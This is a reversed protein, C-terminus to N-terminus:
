KGESKIPFLKTVRPPPGATIQDISVLPVIKDSQIPRMSPSLLLSNRHVAQLDLLAFGKALGMEDRRLPGSSVLRAVSHGTRRSPTSKELGREAKNRRWSQDKSGTQPKLSTETGNILQKKPRGELKSLGGLKKKNKANTDNIDLFEYQPMICHPLLCSPDLKPIPRPDKCQYLPGPTRTTVSCVNRHKVKVDLKQVSSLPPLLKSQVPRPPLNRQQKKKQEVKQAPCLQPVKCRKVGLPKRQSTEKESQLPPKCIQAVAKKQKQKVEPSTKAPVQGVDVEQSFCIYLAVAKTLIGSWERSIQLFYKCNFRILLVQQSGPRTFVYVVPLCGPACSDPAIPLPESDETRSAEESGDGEDLHQIQQQVAQVLYNVAWSATYPILKIPFLPLM